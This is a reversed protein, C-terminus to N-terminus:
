ETDNEEHEIRQRLVDIWERQYHLGYELVDLEPKFLEYFAKEGGYFLIDLDNLSIDSKKDDFKLAQGDYNFCVYRKITFLEPNAEGKIDCIEYYVDSISATITYEIRLVSDAYSLISDFSRDFIMGWGAVHGEDACELIQQINGDSVKYFINMYYLVGTGTGALTKIYFLDDELFVIEPEQYKEMYLDIHDFYVWEGNVERFVLFQYAWKVSAGIRLAKIGPRSFIETKPYYIYCDTDKGIKYDFIYEDSSEWLSKPEIGAKQWIKLMDVGSYYENYQENYVSEPNNFFDQAEQLTLEKAHLDPAQFFMMLFLMFPLIFVINGLKSNMM